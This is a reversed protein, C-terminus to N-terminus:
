NQLISVAIEEPAKANIDIGAPFKVKTIEDKSLENKELQSLISSAKKKSVIM